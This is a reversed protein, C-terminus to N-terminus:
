TGLFVLWPVLRLNVENSTDFWTGLKNVESLVCKIPRSGGNNVINGYNIGNEPEFHLSYTGLFVLWPVLRLNVENSTDLGCELNILKM